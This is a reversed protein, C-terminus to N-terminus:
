NSGPGKLEARVISSGVLLGAGLVLQLAVRMENRM